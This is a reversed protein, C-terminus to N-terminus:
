QAGPAPGDQAAASRATLSATCSTLAFSSVVGNGGGTSNAFSGTGSTLGWSLVYHFSTGFDSGVTVVNSGKPNILSAGFTGSGNTMTGSFFNHTANSGNPNLSWKYGYNDVFCTAAQATQIVLAAVLVSSSLLVKKLTKM